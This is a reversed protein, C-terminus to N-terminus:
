QEPSNSNPNPYHSSNSKPNLNPNLNPNTSGDIVDVGEHGLNLIESYNPNFNPINNREKNKPKGREETETDEEPQVVRSLGTVSYHIPSSLSSNASHLCVSLSPSSTKLGCTTHTEKTM